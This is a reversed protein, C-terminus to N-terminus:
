CICLCLSEMQTRAQRPRATGSLGPPLSRSKDKQGNGFAAWQWICVSLSVYVTHVSDFPGLIPLCSFM